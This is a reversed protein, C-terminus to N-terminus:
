QMANTHQSVAQMDDRLDMKKRGCSRAPCYAALSAQLAVIRVPRFDRHHKHCTELKQIICQTEFLVM